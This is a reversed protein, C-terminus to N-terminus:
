EKTWIRTNLDLQEPIHLLIVLQQLFDALPRTDHLPRSIDPEFWNETKPLALHLRSDLLAAHIGTHWRNRLALFREQMDPTLLYRAEVPDSASVKFAREFEPNELRILDGSLGQIKRGLWGFNAEAFDPEITVHCRFHKHFDAVLYIGQFVTVWTTRTNGKSDTSTDKRQVHLESLLIDTAGVKGHFCDEGRYRDIRSRFLGSARFADEPVLSDPAYDVGPAVIRAAHRYVTSKCRHRFKGCAGGHICHHLIAAVLAAFGIALLGGFPESGAAALALPIGLLLVLAAAIRAKTRRALAHLRVQELEDLLPRIRRAVDAVDPRWNVATSESASMPAPANPM